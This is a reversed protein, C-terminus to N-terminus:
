LDGPPSDFAGWGIVLFAGFGWSVLKGSLRKESITLKRESV